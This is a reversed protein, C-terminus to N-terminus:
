LSPESYTHVKPQNPFSFLGYTHVKASENLKLTKESRVRLSPRHICIENPRTSAIRYFLTDTPRDTPRDM